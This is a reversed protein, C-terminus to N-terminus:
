IPCMSPVIVPPEGDPRSIRTLDVGYVSSLMEPRLVQDPTGDAILKGEGLLVLRHAFLGALNLEHSAMLVGIGRERALRTLLRGLEVQHRLDLHTNPEDLLLAAPEQALCRGLFVRQRQGGSLQDMRRTLFPELGLLRSVEAVIEGDRKSEIGFVQLYPARGLHLAEAVRQSPEWAPHQPLYAVRRALERPRWQALPKDDWTITGGAPLQGLLSRLLTSKGSGNPGLLAVVEGANLAVDIGRLVPQDGYAFQLHQANLLPM